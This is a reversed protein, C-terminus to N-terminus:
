HSSFVWRGNSRNELLRFMIPNLNITGDFVEQLATECVILSFIPTFFFLTPRFWWIPTWEHDSNERRSAPEGLDNSINDAILGDSGSYNLYDPEVSANGAPPVFLASISAIQTQQM